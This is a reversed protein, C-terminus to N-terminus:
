KTRFVSPLRGYRRKFARRFTQPNTYGCELAVANIAKGDGSMLATVAKELRYEELYDAFTRGIRTLMFHYLFNEKMGLDEAARSLNLSPDPYNREIYETIADVTEKEAETKSQRKEGAESLFFHRADDFSTFAAPIRGDGRKISFRVACLHLRSLLKKTNEPSLSEKTCNENRILDIIRETEETDNSAAAALLAKEMDPTFVPKGSRKAAEDYDIYVDGTAYCDPLLSTLSCEDVAKRLGDLDSKVGSSVVAFDFPLMRGLKERFLRINRELLATCKDWTLVWTGMIHDMIIHSRGGFSEELERETVIRLFDLTDPDSPAEGRIIIKLLKWKDGNKWPPGHIVNLLAELEGDPQRISHIYRRFVIEYRFPLANESKGENRREDRLIASVTEAVLEDSIGGAPNGLLDKLRNWHRRSKLLHFFGLLLSSSLLILLFFTIIFASPIEDPLLGNKTVACLYRLGTATGTVASVSYRKGGIRVNDHYGDHLSLVAEYGEATVPISSSIIGNRDDSILFWGDRDKFISKINKELIDAKLLLMIKGRNASQYSLPSIQIYPVVRESRNDIVATVSPLFGSTKQTLYFSRFQLASMGEIRFIPYMREIDFFLNSSNMLYGSTRSYIFIDAIIPNVNRSAPLKWLIDIMTQIESSGPAIEGQHIFASVDPDLALMQGLKVARDINNDALSVFSHVIFHRREASERETQSFLWIQFIFICLLCCSVFVSIVPATKTSFIRFLSRKKMYLLSQIM